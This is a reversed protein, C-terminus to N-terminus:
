RLGEVGFLARAVNTRLDDASVPKRLFTFAGASLAERELEASPEGSVLISPIARLAFRRMTEIGSLDPMHVDLISCHVRERMAIELAAVGGEARHVRYGERELLEAMGERLTPQDDAVILSFSARQLRSM